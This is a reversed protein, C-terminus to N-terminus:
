QMGKAVAVFDSMEGEHEQDDEDIGSLCDRYVECNRRQM